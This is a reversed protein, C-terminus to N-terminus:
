RTRCIMMSRCWRPRSCAPKLCAALSRARCCRLAPLVLACANTPFSASRARRSACWLPAHHHHPRRTKESPRLPRSMRRRWCLFRWTDCASTLAACRRALLCHTSNTGPHLRACAPRRLSAAASGCHVYPPLEAQACRLHHCCVGAETAPLVRVSPTPVAATQLAGGARKAKAGWGCATHGADECQAGGHLHVASHAAEM